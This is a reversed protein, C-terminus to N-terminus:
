DLLTIDGRFFDTRNTDFDDSYTVKIAYMYVGPNFGNTEFGSITGDWTIELDNSTFVLNGWRDYVNMEYFDIRASTSPTVVFRQNGEQASRSFVNPVYLGFRSCERSIVEIADEAICGESSTAMVSIEGPETVNITPVTEGTSWLIDAGQADVSLSAGVLDCIEIDDGLNLEPLEGLEIMIDDTDTCGNDEVMVSILEGGSVTITSTTEGTSWETTWQPNGTTLMIADGDCVVTDMGLIVEPAQITSVEIESDDTCGNIDIVVSYTDAESVEISATTEGTSWLYSVGPATADLVLSSDSCITATEDLTIEPVEQVIVFTTDSWACGGQPNDITADLWVPGENNTRVTIEENGDATSWRFDVNAPAGNEYTPSLLQSAGDCLGTSDPLTFFPTPNLSLNFTDRLECDDRSTLILDYLGEEQAYFEDVGPTIMASGTPESILNFMTGPVLSSLRFVVISDGDCIFADVPLVPDPLANFIVETTDLNPCGNQRAVVFYFDSQTVEITNTMEGTSWVYEVGPDGPAGLTITEGACALVTDQLELLPLSQVTVIISDRTVCVGNTVALEYSGAETIAFDSMTSLETGDFDSWIVDPFNLQDYSLPTGACITTDLAGATQHLEFNSPTDFTVDIVDSVSCNGSSVEIQYQDDTTVQNIPLGNNSPLWTYTVNGSLTADLNLVEGMCLTTDAPGIDFTGLDLVSVSITTDVSCRGRDATLIYDDAESVNITVGDEGTSWSYMVDQEQTVTIDLDEGVCLTTDRTNLVFIPAPEVDVGITDRSFCIGETAEFIYDSRGLVVPASLTDEDGLDDGTALDIWRHTLTVGDRKPIDLTTADECITIDSGLSVDTLQTVTVNREETARCVGRFADVVYTRSTQADVPISMTTLGVNWRVSDFGAVVSLNAIEGACITTDSMDTMVQLIEADFSVELSDRDTCAGETVEIYYFGDAPLSATSVEISATSTGDNWVYTSNNFSPADFSRVEDECLRIETIRDGQDDVFVMDFPELDIRTINVTDFEVCGGRDVMVTYQDTANVDITETTQGTSWLFTASPDSFGPDLTTSAGQCVDRDQQGPLVFSQAFAVDITDRIECGSPTLAVAIIQMADPAITYTLDTSVPAGNLEWSISMIASADFPALVIISDNCAAVDEGLFRRAADNEADTPFTWNSTREGSSGPGAFYSGGGRADIDSIVFFSMVLSIDSALTFDESTNASSTRFIISKCQDGRGEFYSDVSVDVGDGLEYTHGPAFILSDIGYTEGSFAGDNNIILTGITVDDTVLLSATGDGSEFTVDGISGMDISFGSEDATFVWQTGVASIGSIDSIMVPYTTGDFMGAVTITSGDLRLRVMDDQAIIMDAQVEFGDTLFEGSGGIDLTGRIVLATDLRVRSGAEGTIFVNNLINPAVDVFLNDTNDTNGATDTSLLFLDDILWTLRESTIRIRPKETKNGVDQDAVISLSPMDISGIFGDTTFTFSNVFVPIDSVIMAGAAVGSPFSNDDFFVNDVSKPICAGPMGGPSRSWNNPDNWDGGDGVWYLNRSPGSFIFNPSNNGGNFGGTMQIDGSFDGEIGRLFFPGIIQNMILTVIARPGNDFEAILRADGDCDSRDTLLDGIAQRSGNELKLTYGNSIQLNQIIHDGQILGDRSFTLNEIFPELQDAPVRTTLRANAEVFNISNFLYTMDGTLEMVADNGFLNIVSSGADFNFDSSEMIVRVNEGIPGFLLVTAAGLDLGSSNGSDPVLIGESTIDNDDTILEGSLIIIDGGQQIFDDQLTWEGGSGNFIVDNNFSQGAMTIQEDTDNSRFVYPSQVDHIMNASLLLSGDVNVTDGVGIQFTPMNTVASFDLNNCNVNTSVTVVQGPADFSNADFIADVVSSPVGAGGFASGSTFSWNGDDHWDGSGGIWYFEQQASMTGVTCALLFFFAYINRLQM